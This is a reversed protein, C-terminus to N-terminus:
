HSLPSSYLQRGLGLTGEALVSRCFGVSKVRLFELKVIKEWVTVFISISLSLRIFCGKNTLSGGAM